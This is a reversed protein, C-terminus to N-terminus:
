RWDPYTSPSDNEINIINAGTIDMMYIKSDTSLGSYTDMFIIKNGDPSLSPDYIAYGHHYVDLSDLIEGEPTFIKLIGYYDDEVVIINITHSWDPEKFNSKSKAILQEQYNELNLIM